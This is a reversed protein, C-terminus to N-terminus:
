VSSVKRYCVLLKNPLEVESLYDLISDLRQHIIVVPLDISANQYSEYKSVFTDLDEKNEFVLIIPAIQYNMLLLYTIDDVSLTSVVGKAFRVLFSYSAVDIQELEWDRIQNQFEEVSAYTSIMPMEDEGLDVTRPLTSGIVVMTIINSSTSYNALLQQHDLCLYDENSGCILCTPQDM